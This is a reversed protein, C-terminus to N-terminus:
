KKYESFIQGFNEFFRFPTYKQQLKPNKVIELNQENFKDYIEFTIAHFDKSLWIIDSENLNKANDFFRSGIRLSFWNRHIYFNPYRSDVFTGYTEYESFGSGDIDKSNIAMLIKEWFLKGKLESNNEIEDLLNKMYETKIMQHESIYSRDSFTLKSLLRKMTQFYPEWHETKMDFFPHENEFLQISKIPITDADWILYYENKCIRSYAMKLFQQEYWYDKFTTRSREVQLFKNIAAKPVLTDENIFRISNDKNIFHSSSAPSIIILNTYNLYKRYFKINDNFSDIHDKSLMIVLDLKSVSLENSSKQNLYDVIKVYISFLFIMLIKGNKKLQRRRM